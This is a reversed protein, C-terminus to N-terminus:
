PRKKALEMLESITRFPGFLSELEAQAGPTVVMRSGGMDLWQEEWTRVSEPSEQLEIVITALDTGERLMEFCRAAAWGPPKAHRINQPIKSLEVPDYVIMKRYFGGADARLVKEPHLKGRRELNILTTESCGLMDSAQARPMWHALPDRKAIRRTINKATSSMAATTVM